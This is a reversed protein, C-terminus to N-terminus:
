KYSQLAKMYNAREFAAAQPCKEQSLSGKMQQLSEYEHEEMWSEVGKLIEGARKVGHILLASCIMTASAGAMVMKLVDESKFIGSTAALDAKVRGYLIAIWRLPLRMEAASSLVLDPVVELEELDIDPQYFRNFLVLGNAGAGELQKAMHALSSFFPSLKVAVPISVSSRVTRVNELYMAEVDAGTKSPDTAIYYINLELADAGAQQMKQAYDMWGGSSVGNLSAIVPIGLAAKAKQIHELYEEPGHEYEDLEPYYSLAEAFSEKGAKLFHDLAGEEHRIQEEFLSELVVASVGADELHRMTDLDRTLPGASAVLPNKLDLGLYKTKLDM